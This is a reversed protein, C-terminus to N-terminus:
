FGLHEVMKTIGSIIQQEYNTGHDTLFHEPLWWDYEDSPREVNLWEFETRQFDAIEPVQGPSLSRFCYMATPAERRAKIREFTRVLAEIASPHAGFIHPYSLVLMTPRPDRLMERFREIRADYTSRLQAFDNEVYALGNEHVFEFEVYPDDCYDVDPRYQLNQPQAFDAFDTEVLRDLAFPTCRAIDFPGTLEGLKKPPKLGWRTPLTRSMCDLGVSLFQIHQYRPLNRRRAEALDILRDFVDATRVLATAKAIQLRDIDARSISLDEHLSRYAVSMLGGLLEGGIEEATV